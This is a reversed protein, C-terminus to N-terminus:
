NDLLELLEKSQKINVGAEISRQLYEKAAPTNNAQLQIKACHFYAPAYGQISLSIIDMWGNKGKQLAEKLREAMSKTSSSQPHRTEEKSTSEKAVDEKFATNEKSTNDEIKALLAQAAKSDVGAKVAKQAYM